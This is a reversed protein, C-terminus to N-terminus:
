RGAWIILAATNIAALSASIFIMLLLQKPNM